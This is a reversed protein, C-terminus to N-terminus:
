LPLLRSGLCPCPSVMRESYGVHIYMYPSETSHSIQAFLGPSLGREWTEWLLPQSLTQPWFLSLTLLIRCSSMLQISWRGDRHITGTAIVLLTVLSWLTITLLVLVGCIAASFICTVLILLGRGVPLVLQFGLSFLICFCFQSFCVRFEKLFHKWM